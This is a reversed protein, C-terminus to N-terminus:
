TTRMWLRVEMNEVLTIGFGTSILSKLLGGHGSTEGEHFGKLELVAAFMVIASYAEVWVPKLCPKAVSADFGSRLRGRRSAAVIISSLGDEM